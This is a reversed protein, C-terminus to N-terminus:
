RGARKREYMAADARGLLASPEEFGAAYAAGVSVGISVSGGGLEVPARTAERLRDALAGVEGPGPPQEVLVVFEDGGWRAVTDEARVTACLRDAVARLVQDGGDHGFRDNVPKLGDVDCFLVAVGGRGRRARELAQGLRDMLVDRNPLGTMADHSARHQLEAELRARDSVDVVIVGCGDIEGNARVPFVHLSWRGQEDPHAPRAADVELAVVPPGGDLVRRYLETARDGMEGHVEGPTRGVLDAPTLGSIAALAPNVRAYRVDRDLVGLALPADAFLADLLALGFRDDLSDSTM